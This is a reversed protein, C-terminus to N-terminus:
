MFLIGYKQMFQSSLIDLGSPDAYNKQKLFKKCMQHFEEYNNSVTVKIGNKEARRIHRKHQRKINNWIEDLDQSLDIKTILYQIRDFGKIDGWNKYTHYSVVSCDPIDATGPKEAFYVNVFIFIGFKRETILM